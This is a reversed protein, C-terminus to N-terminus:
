KFKNIIENIKVMDKGRIGHLDKKISNIQEKQEDTMLDNLGDKNLENLMRISEKALFDVSELMKKTNINM